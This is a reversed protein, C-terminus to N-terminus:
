SRCPGDLVWAPFSLRLCIRSTTWFGFITEAHGAIQGFEQAFTTDMDRGLAECYQPDHRTPGVARGVVDSRANAGVDAGDRSLRNVVGERHQDLLPEDPADLGGSRRGEVLITDTVVVMVQDT